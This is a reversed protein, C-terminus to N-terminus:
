PAKKNSDILKKYGKPLKKYEKDFLVMDGQVLLKDCLKHRSYHKFIFDGVRGIAAKALYYKLSKRAPIIGEYIENYCENSFFYMVMNVDDDPYYYKYHICSLKSLLPIVNLHFMIM